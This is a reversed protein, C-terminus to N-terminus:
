SKGREDPFRSRARAASVYFGACVALSLGAMCGGVLQWRNLRLWYPAAGAYAIMAVMACIALSIPNRRARWSAFFRAFVPLWAVAQLGALILLCTEM